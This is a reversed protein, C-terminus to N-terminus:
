CGNSSAIKKFYQLTGSSVKRIWVVCTCVCIRGGCQMRVSLALTMDFPNTLFQIDGYGLSIYPM